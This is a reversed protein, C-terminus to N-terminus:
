IIEDIYQKNFEVKDSLYQELSSLLAQSDIQGEQPFYYGSHFKTIDPEKAIITEQTLEECAAVPYEKLKKAIIQKFRWLETKDAPHSLVLSGKHQFYVKKHLQSLINPWHQTLAEIGLQFIIANNRELEAIPALLGAAAMSCNNDPNPDFLTVKWGKNILELALLRGMIGAGAIGARM